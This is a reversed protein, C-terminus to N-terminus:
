VQEVCVGKGFTEVKLQEYRGRALTAHGLGIVCDGLGAGSIKAGHIGQSARLDRAIGDLVPSSVGLDQMRAQAEDFCRGLAPWDGTEIAPVAALVGQHIADFIEEFRVPDAQRAQELRAVVEPTPIKGGSYVVTLPCIRNLKRIERPQSVYFVTGGWVSAAVDAGSGMGQIARITSLAADFLDMPDPKRGAAEALAAHTAVTVAASSGLGVTSSFDSRIELSVGGPLTSAYSRVAEVVFQFPKEAAAEALPRNYRGLSSTIDLIGDDRPALQVQMRSSVSTVLSARGHLVAHEGMLM